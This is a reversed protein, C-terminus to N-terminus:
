TLIFTFNSRIISGGPLHRQLLQLQLILHWKNITSMNIATKYEVVKFRMRRDSSMENAEIKISM